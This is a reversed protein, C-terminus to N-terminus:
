RGDVERLARRAQHQNRGCREIARGPRPRLGSLRGDGRCRYGNTCKRIRSGHGGVGETDGPGTTGTSLSWRRVVLHPRPRWRSPERSTTKNELFRRVRIGTSAWACPTSRRASRRRRMRASRAATTRGQAQVRVCCLGGPCASRHGHYDRNHGSEAFPSGAIHQPLIARVRTRFCVFGAHASHYRCVLAM